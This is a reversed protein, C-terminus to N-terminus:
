CAAGFRRGALLPPICAEQIPLVTEYGLETVAKVLPAALNLESFALPPQSM